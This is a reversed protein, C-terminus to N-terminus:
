EGQLMNNEDKAGSDEDYDDGLGDDDDEEAEGQRLRKLLPVDLMHAGTLKALDSRAPMRIHHTRCLWEFSVCKREARARVVARRLRAKLNHRYRNALSQHNRMSLEPVQVMLNEAFWALPLQQGVCDAELVRLCIVLDEVFSYPASIVSGADPPVAHKQRLWDYSVTRGAANAAVVARHLPAMLRVFYEQAITAGTRGTHEWSRFHDRFWTDPLQQGTCQEAVAAECMALHEEFSFARTAAERRVRLWTYDLAKGRGLALARELGDQLHNNYRMMLSTAPRSMLEEVRGVVHEEFFGITLRPASQAIQLVRDCLAKDEEFSFANSRRGLRTPAPQHTSEYSRRPVRVMVLLQLNFDVAWVVRGNENEPDADVTLNAICSPLRTCRQLVDHDLHIHMVTDITRREGRLVLVLAGSVIACEAHSLDFRALAEANIQRELPVQLDLGLQVDGLADINIVVLMRSSMPVTVTRMSPVPPGAVGGAMAAAAAAGSMSAAAPAAPQHPAAATDDEKSRKLTSKLETEFDEDYKNTRKARRTRQTSDVPDSMRPAPALGLTAAEEVEGDIMSLMENTDDATDATADLLGHLERLWHYSMKGPPCFLVARSLKKALRKSYRGYLGSANRGQLLPVRGVANERFWKQGVRQGVMGRDVVLQCIALDQDFTYYDKSLTHRHKEELWDWPMETKGDRHARAMHFLLEERLYNYRLILAGTNREALEPPMPSFSARFWAPALKKDLGGCDIVRGCLRMDEALTWIPSRRNKDAALAAEAEAQTSRAAVSVAGSGCLMRVADEEDVEM